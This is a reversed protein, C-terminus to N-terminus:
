AALAYRRCHDLYGAEHSGALSVISEWLWSPADILGRRDHELVSQWQKRTTGDMQRAHAKGVVFALYHAAKAAQSQSFQDIELKLDQPALERIFLSRGGMRVPIMRTGLHPSLARAASVVRVANDAPMSAGPAAPALPAVAEKLDVLAYSSRGKVNKLALLVAYRHLGLSSCGKMWYAADVMRITRDTPRGDLALILRAVDPEDFVAKLEVREDEALAWFKKGLPLKPEIAELREKALHQWRRSLAKRRVSRVVDPEPGADGSAPDNMAAAYGDVMEEIMRATAVGPLDSGRAATALSLGLRILDHAPNGIVAQDLDRIQIEVKGEGNALPGLNGLHCDGCIWVPPGQPIRKVVPSGDLWEYFKATNGRVYAHASRAMKLTRNADLITRREALTPTKM